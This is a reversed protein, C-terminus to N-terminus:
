ADSEQFESALHPDPPENTITEAQAFRVPSEPHRCHDWPSGSFITKYGLVVKIPISSKCLTTRGRQDDFCGAYPVNGAARQQADSVVTKKWPQLFKDFCDTCGAFTMRFKENLNNIEQRDFPSGVRRFIKIAKERDSFAM